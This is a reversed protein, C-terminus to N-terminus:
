LGAGGANRNHCSRAATAALQSHLGNRQYLVPHTSRQPATGPATSDRAATAAAPPSAATETAIVSNVEFMYDPNVYQSAGFCLNAVHTVQAFASPLIMTLLLAALVTFYVSLKYARARGCPSAFQRSM